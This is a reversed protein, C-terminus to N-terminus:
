SGDSDGEITWKNAMLDVFTVDDEEFIGLNTDPEIHISKFQNLHYNINHGKWHAKMAEGFSVYEPEIEYGNTLADLFEKYRYNTTHKQIWDHIIRINKGMRVPPEIMLKTILKYKWMTDTNDKWDDIAEAVKKPLRVKEAM